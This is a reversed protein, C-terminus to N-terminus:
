QKELIRIQNLTTHSKSSNVWVQCIGAFREYDDHFTKIEIAEIREFWWMVASYVIDFQGVFEGVWEVFGWLSKYVFM